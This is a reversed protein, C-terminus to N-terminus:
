TDTNILSVERYPKIDANKERLYQPYDRYENWGLHIATVDQAVACVGHNDMRKLFDFDVTKADFGGIKDFVDRRLLQMTTDPVSLRLGPDNAYRNAARLCLFRTEFRNWCPPINADDLSVGLRVLEPYTDLYNILRTLWCPNLDPVIIDPDSIAFLPSRVHALGYHWGDMFCNRHLLILEDIIGDRQRQELRRRMPEGSCNDVVIIRYPYSTRECLASLMQEIYRQRQYTLLVIDIPEAM